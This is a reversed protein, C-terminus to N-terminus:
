LFGSGGKPGKRHTRALGGKKDKELDLVFNFDGGIIIGECQFDSLHEFFSKFFNPDHDNHTYVNALAIPKGNAEIDCIIFCGNPDLFVKLICFNFNNNFLIGVGAKNSTCYSFLAQYGWESAWLDSTVACCHVEQLM